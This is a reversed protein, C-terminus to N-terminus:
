PASYLGEALVPWSAKLDDQWYGWIHTGSNRFEFTAPINLSELRKQLIITSLAVNAEIFSGLAVTKTTDAPNSEMRGRAGPVDFAGPIGNGTSIFLHTGRLKEANLTPDNAAWLPGGEPGWMNEVKGGGYLETVMKISERGQPTTTQFFGSYVAASRFLGPNFIVSNLVPLGAMSIGAIANVGNAGLAADMLPPLEKGLYTSWENVGLSKDPRLWDTYWSFAGGIPQVVNINKDALFDLADTRLQWTAQDVGGGAGNLLYLTPRAESTDAPRLVDVPFVQNMAGSFVTFTVTHDDKAAVSKIYSGDDTKLDPVTVGPLTTPAAPDPDAGAPNGGLSLSTAATLAAVALRATIRSIRVSM